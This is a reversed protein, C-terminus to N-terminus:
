MHSSTVARLPTNKRRDNKKKKKEIEGWDSPFLVFIM